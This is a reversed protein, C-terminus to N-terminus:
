TNVIKEGKLNKIKHAPFQKLEGKIMQLYPLGHQEGEKKITTQFNCTFCKWFDVKIKKVM